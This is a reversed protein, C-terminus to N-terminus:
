FFVNGGFLLTEELGALTKVQLRYTGVIDLSVDYSVSSYRDPHLIRKLISM